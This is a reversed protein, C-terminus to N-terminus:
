YEEGYKRAFEMKEMELAFRRDELEQEAAYQRANEEIEIRLEEEEEYERREASRREDAYDSASARSLDGFHFHISDSQYSERHAAFEVTVRGDYGPPETIKAIGEGAVYVVM